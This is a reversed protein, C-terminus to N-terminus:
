FVEQAEKKSTPEEEINRSAVSNEESDGGLLIIHQINSKPTYRINVCPTASIPGRSHSNTMLFSLPENIIAALHSDKPCFINKIQHRSLPDGLTVVPLLNMLYIYTNKWVSCKKHAPPLCSGPIKAKFSFFYFSSYKVIHLVNIIDM